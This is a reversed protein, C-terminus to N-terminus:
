DSGRGLAEKELQQFQDQIEVPWVGELSLITGKRFSAMGLALELLILSSSALLAVRNGIM